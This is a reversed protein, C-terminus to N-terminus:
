GITKWPEEIIKLSKEHNKEVSYYLKDAFKSMLKKDM